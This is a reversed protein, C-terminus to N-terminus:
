APGRGPRREADAQQDEDRDHRQDQREDEGRREPEGARPDLAPLRQDDAEHQGVQEDDHHDARQAYMPRSQTAPM